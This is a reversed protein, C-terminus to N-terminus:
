KLGGSPQLGESPQIGGFDGFVSPESKVPDIKTFDSEGITQQSGTSLTEEVVDFDLNQSSYTEKFQKLSKEYNFDPDDLRQLSIDDIEDRDALGLGNLFLGIQEDFTPIRTDSGNARAAANVLYPLGAFVLFFAGSSICVIRFINKPDLM